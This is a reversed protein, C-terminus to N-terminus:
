MNAAIFPHFCDRGTAPGPSVNLAVIWQQTRTRGTSAVSRITLNGDSPKASDDSAVMGHHGVGVGWPGIQPLHSLYVFVANATVAYVTNVLHSPPPDRSESSGEVLLDQSGLSRCM